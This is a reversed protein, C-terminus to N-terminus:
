VQDAKTSKGYKLAKRGSDFHRHFPDTVWAKNGGKSLVRMTNVSNLKKFQKSLYKKTLREIKKYSQNPVLRISFKGIVKGPIVTKPGPGAHAGEIGHLSLSPFRWRHMLLDIKNNQLTSKVGLDEQFCKVDFDIGTYLNHEKETVPAVDDMLGPILIKGKHDVLSSMLLVLDTMPEQISGGYIGSHIDKAPGQVEIYFYAMGRLGYTLCPKSKGVWNSDSITIYDVDKFFTNKRAVVLSELGISSSEEMAEFLFQLCLKLFDFRALKM